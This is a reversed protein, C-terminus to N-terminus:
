DEPQNMSALLPLTADSAPAGKAKKPAVRKGGKGAHM